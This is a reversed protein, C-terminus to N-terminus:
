QEKKIQIEITGNKDPIKDLSDILVSIVNGFISKVFPNLPIEQGDIKLIITQNM